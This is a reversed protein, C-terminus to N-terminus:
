SNHHQNIDSLTKMHLSRQRDRQSELASWEKEKKQYFVQILDEKKKAQTFDHIQPDFSTQRSLADIVRQKRDRVINNRIQLQEEERQLGM